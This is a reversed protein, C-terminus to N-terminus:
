HRSCDEASCARHRLTRAPCEHPSSPAPTRRAPPPSRAPTQAPAPARCQRHPHPTGTRAILKPAAVAILARPKQAPRFDADDAKAIQALRQQPQEGPEAGLHPNMIRPHRVRGDAILAGLRGTQSLNQRLAVRNEDDGGDRGLVLSKQPALRKCGHAFARRENQKGARAHNIKVRQHIRNLAPMNNRRAVHKRFLRQRRDGPARADLIEDARRVPRPCQVNRELAHAVHHQLVHRQMSFPRGGIRQLRASRSVTARIRDFATVRFQTKRLTRIGYRLYCVAFLIRRDHCRAFVRRYRM